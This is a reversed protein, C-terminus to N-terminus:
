DAAKEALDWATVWEKAAPALQFDEELRKAMDELHGAGYFIGVRKKGVTLQERLKELAVRNREHILTSGDPGGFGGLLSDIQTLQGAMAIKLARPRDEAFMAKAMDIEASEGKTAQQSQVAISHGVLRFYMRLLSEDRRKMTAFMEDPSMDAHVFNQATYDVHELQHELALMSKMGNQMAGLPNAGDVRGGRPIRTGEPAVLEYLLTDYQEFRDNLDEYYSADGVHIAGVLDVSVPTAAGEVGAFTGEYRGIATELAVPEGAENRRCRVWESAVGEEVAATVPNAAPQKGVSREPFAMLLSLVGLAIAGWRGASLRSLPRSPSAAVHPM